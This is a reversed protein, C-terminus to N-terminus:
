SKVQLGESTNKNESTKLSWNEKTGNIFNSIGKMFRTALANNKKESKIKVCLLASTIPM